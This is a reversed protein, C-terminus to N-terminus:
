VSKKFVKKHIYISVGLRIVELGILTILIGTNSLLPESFLNNLYVLFGFSFYGSYIRIPFQIYNIWIGIKQQKFLYYSSLLLSGWMLVQGFNLLIIELDFTGLLLKMAHFEM